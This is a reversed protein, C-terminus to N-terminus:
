AIWILDASGSGLVAWNFVIFNRAEGASPASGDASVADLGARSAKPNKSRQLRAQSLMSKPGTAESRRRFLPPGGALLGTRAYM